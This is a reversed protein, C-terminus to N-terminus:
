SSGSAFTGFQCITFRPYAGGLNKSEERWHLMHEVRVDNVHAVGRWFGHGLAMSTARENLSLDRIAEFCSLEEDDFTDLECEDLDRDRLWFRETQPYLKGGAFHEYYLGVIKRAVYRIHPTLPVVEYDLWDM